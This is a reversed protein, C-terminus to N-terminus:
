LWILGSLTLALVIATILTFVWDKEEFMFLFLSTVLRLVPTFVLVYIGVEVIAQGRGAWFGHWTEIPTQFKAGGEIRQPGAHGRYFSLFTGVMMIVASLIVGGRLIYSSIDSIQTEIRELKASEAIQAAVDPSPQLISSDDM